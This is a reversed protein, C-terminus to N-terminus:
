IEPILAATASEFERFEGFVTEITWASTEIVDPSKVKNDTIACFDELRGLVWALVAVTAAMSSPSPADPLMSLSPSPKVLGGSETNNDTISSLYPLFGGIKVCDNM